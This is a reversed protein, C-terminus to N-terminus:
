RWEASLQFMVMNRNFESAQGSSGRQFESHTYSFRGSLIPSFQYVASATVSYSKFQLRSSDPVSENVAYSASLSLTMPEAIQRTALATVSQSLMATSLFLFSPSIARSYSVQVTTHQGGIWELSAGGVPYVSSGQSLVSFGGEGSIKLEPTLLRTWGM